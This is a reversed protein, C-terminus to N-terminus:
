VQGFAGPHSDTDSRDRLVKKFHKKIMSWREVFGEKATKPENLVVVRMLGITQCMRVTFSSEKGSSSQMTMSPFMEM